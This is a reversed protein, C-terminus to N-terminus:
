SLHELKLHHTIIFQIDKKRQLHASITQRNLEMIYVFNQLIRSQMYEHFDKKLWNINIHM